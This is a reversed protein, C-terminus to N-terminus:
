KLYTVSVENKNIFEINLIKNFKINLEQKSVVDLKLFENHYKPVKKQTIRNEIFIEHNKIREDIRKNFDSKLNDLNNEIFISFNDLLSKDIEIGISNRELMMASLTTTGTGLFPDLVVDGKVSFMNILRNSLEMPYAASRQRSNKINLKQKAGKFSWVDSFWINREEFFFASERRIQKETDTKFERKKDGKRFILIWEHELTVYAGVPLTGSGMFKNPANTQKRWIISPLQVYNNNIFYQVIKQHNNFLQFKGNFSRTADGINICVIGGDKVVINLESWIGNLLKNAASFSNQIDENEILVNEEINFINDWMEIMPYPPSTVVLDVSNPLLKKSMENANINITKHKTKM